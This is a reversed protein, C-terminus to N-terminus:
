RTSITTSQLSYILQSLGFTKVILIKGELTLNRQRWINLQRELKLIKNTINENYSKNDDNSYTIGCICVSDKDYITILNM